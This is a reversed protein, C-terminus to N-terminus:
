HLVLSHPLMESLGHREWEHSSGNCSNGMEVFQPAGEFLLKLWKLEIITYYLLHCTLAIFPFSIQYFM